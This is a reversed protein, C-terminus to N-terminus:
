MKVIEAAESKEAFDQVVKQSIQLLGQKLLPVFESAPINDRKLLWRKMACVFADTYFDAYFEREREVLFVEKLDSLLASVIYERFYESFANEGELRFLKRYYARNNNIYFCLEELLEWGNREGRQKANAIFETDFIWNVLDFKDKFHYYFSKRNMDCKECIDGVSIKAFPQREM